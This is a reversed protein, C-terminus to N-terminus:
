EAVKCELCCKMTTHIVMNMIIMDEGSMVDEQHHIIVILMMLLLDGAMLDEQHHIIIISM